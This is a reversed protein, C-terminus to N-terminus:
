LDDMLRIDLNRRPSTPHMLRADLPHAAIVVRSKRASLRTISLDATTVRHDAAANYM